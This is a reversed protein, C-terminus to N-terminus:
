RYNTFDLAVPITEDIKLASMLEQLDDISKSSVRITEGQISAKLKPFSDRIKKTISKSTEQDLAKVLVLEERFRMGGIPKITGRKLVKPPVGRTIAKKLVIGYLAEVQSESEASLKIDEETLEIEVKADKLDYRNIAEKKAQDVANRIEQLDFKAVIDMSHEQAM